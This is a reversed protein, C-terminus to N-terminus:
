AAFRRANMSGSRAMSGGAYPLTLSPLSVVYKVTTSLSRLATENMLLMKAAKPDPITAPSVPM